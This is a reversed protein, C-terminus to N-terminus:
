EKSSDTSTDVAPATDVVVTEQKLSNEAVQLFSAIVLPHAFARIVLPSIVLLDTLSLAIHDARAAAMALRMRYMRTELSSTQDGEYVATLARAIVERIPLVAGQFAADSGDLNQVNTTLSMNFM